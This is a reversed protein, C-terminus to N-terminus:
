KDLRMELRLMTLVMNRAEQAKWASKWPHNHRVIATPTISGQAKKELKHLSNVASM